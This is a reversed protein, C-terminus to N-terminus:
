IRVRTKFCKEVTDYYFYIKSNDLYCYINDNKLNNFFTIINCPGSNDRDILYIHILDNTNFNEYDLQYSNDGFNDSDLTIHYIKNIEFSKIEEM